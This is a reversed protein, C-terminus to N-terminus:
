WDNEDTVIESIKVRPEKEVTVKEDTIHVSFKNEKKDHKSIIVDYLGHLNEFETEFVAPGMGPITVQPASLGRIILRVSRDILLSEVNIHYRFNTFENVTRLAFLTV